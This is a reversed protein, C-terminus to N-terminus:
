LGKVGRREPLGSDEDFFIQCRPIAAKLGEYAKKSVTTHYLDLSQLTGISGLASVGHDTVMTHDLSLEKLNPLQKLLEMGKDSVTTYDFNL